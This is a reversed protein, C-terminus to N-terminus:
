VCPRLIDKKAKVDNHFEDRITVMNEDIDVIVFEKPSWFSPLQDRDNDSVRWVKDGPTFNFITKVKKKDHQVKQIYQAKAMRAIMKGSNVSPLNQDYISPPHRNHFAYYPTM